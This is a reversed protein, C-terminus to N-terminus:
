RNTSKVQVLAVAEILDDMRFPKNLMAGKVQKIFDNVKPNGRHGTIFIFRKCLHPRMREVATYFMDGPLKPMMMDCVIADFEQKLVARVGEAGNSVAVVEYFNTELYEKIATKLMEDDELLLVRKYKAAVNEEDAPIPM